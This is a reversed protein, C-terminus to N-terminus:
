PSHQPAAWQPGCEHFRRSLVGDKWHVRHGCIFVSCPEPCRAFNLGEQPCGKWSCTRMGLLLCWLSPWPPQYRARGQASVLFPCKGAQAGWPPATPPPRSTASHRYSCHGTCPLQGVHFSCHPSPGSTPGPRGFGKPSPSAVSIPHCLSVTTVAQSWKTRRESSHTRLIM